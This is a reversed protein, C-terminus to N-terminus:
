AVPLLGNGGRWPRFPFGEGTPRGGADEKGALRHHIGGLPHQTVGQQHPRRCALGGCRGPIPGLLEGEQHVDEVAETDFLAERILQAEELQAAAAKGALEHIKQRPLAEDDFNRRRRRLRRQQRPELLQAGPAQAKGAGAGIVLVGEKLQGGRRIQDDIVEAALAQALNRAQVTQDLGLVHLAQHAVHPPAGVELGAAADTALKVLPLEQRPRFGQGHPAEVGAAGPDDFDEVQHTLRASM